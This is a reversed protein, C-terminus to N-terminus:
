KVVPFDSYKRLGFYPQKPDTNVKVPLADVQWVERGDRVARLSAHGVFRAFAYQWEVGEGGKRAEIMLFAEPDTGRVFAFLAGDTAGQKESAYRYVPAPLLRMDEKNKSGYDVVVSFQAALTRMQSLRAVATTGPKPAGSLPKLEVGPHEPEWVVKGDHSLLPLTASLSHIETEMARRAGYINTIAAIVEPRGEHTWVYVDSYFRRDLQLLWRFVPEPERRLRLGSQKDLQFVYEDALKRAIARAEEAEAKNDAKEGAPPSPPQSPGHGLLLLVMMTANM